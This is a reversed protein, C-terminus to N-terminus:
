LARAAEAFEPAGVTFARLAEILDQRGVGAAEWATALAAVNPYSSPGFCGYCGRGFAPCIAGCGTRTVPGLCPIGPAVLVCTSGRRKCEICVPHNPISPRRGALLATVLDVLQDISVPCGYLAYDVKVHDSIPTSTALVDLYEPNAYVQAAFEEVDAANRLAQIGGSTACAGITVLIACQDRIERIRLADHPTTVSGEVLGVTYPGPESRTTAERFEVIDIAGAIAVLHDEADLISLQCGDCSAFKFVALTPKM